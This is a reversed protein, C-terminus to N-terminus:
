QGRSLDSVESRLTQSRGNPVGGFLELPATKGRSASAADARRDTGVTSNKSKEM